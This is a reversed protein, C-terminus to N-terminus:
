YIRESQIRWKENQMKLQEEAWERLQGDPDNQARDRLLELTKPDTPSNAVKTSTVELELQM